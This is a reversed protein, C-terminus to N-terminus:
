ETKNKLINENQEYYKSRLFRVVSRQGYHYNLSNLDDSIQFEYLPFAGEIANILAESVQPFPEEKM